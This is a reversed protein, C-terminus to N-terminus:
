TATLDLSRRQLPQSLSVWSVFKFFGAELVVAALDTTFQCSVAKHGSPNDAVFQGAKGDLLWSGAGYTLFADTSPISYDQLAEVYFRLKQPDDPSEVLYGTVEPCWQVKGKVKADHETHWESQETKEGPFANQWSFAAEPAAAEVAPSPEPRAACGFCRDFEQLIKRWDPSRVADTLFESRVAGPLCLCGDLITCLKLEPEAPDSPMDSIDAEPKYKPLRDAMPGERSKWMDLLSNKALKAATVFHAQKESQSVCPLSMAVCTKELCADYMTM